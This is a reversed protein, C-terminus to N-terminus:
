QLRCIVYALLFNKRWIWYDRVSVCIGCVLGRFPLCGAGFNIDVRAPLLPVFVDEHKGVDYTDRHQVFVVCRFISFVYLYQSTEDCGDDKLHRILPSGPQFNLLATPLPRSCRLSRCCHIIASLVGIVNKLLDSIGVSFIWIFASRPRQCQRWRDNQKLIADSIELIDPM